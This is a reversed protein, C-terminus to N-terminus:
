FSLSASVGAFISRSAGSEYFRGGTENVIVSGVFRRDFVNDVRVFESFRVRGFDQTLGARLALLEYSPASESNRDNVYVKSAGRAEMALVLGRAPSRWGFEGYMTFAPVGPIKNGAAVPVRPNVGPCLTQACTTFDADFTAELYTAAVLGYLGNRFRTDLLLEVGKRVSPGANQFV